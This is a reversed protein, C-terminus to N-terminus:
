QWRHTPTLTARTPPMERLAQQLKASMAELAARVQAAAQAEAEDAQEAADEAEAKTRAEAQAPAYLEPALREAVMLMLRPDELLTAFDRARKHLKQADDLRAKNFATLAATIHAQTINAVEEKSMQAYRQAFEPEGTQRLASLYLEPKPTQKRM